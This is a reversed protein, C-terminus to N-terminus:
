LADCLAGASITAQQSVSEEVLQLEEGTQSSLLVLENLRHKKKKDDTKNVDWNYNSLVAVDAVARAVHAASMEPVGPLFLGASNVKIRTLAQVATHVAQQLSKQTAKDKPGMGVVQVAVLSLFM